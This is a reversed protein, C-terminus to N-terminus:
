SKSPGHDSQDDSDPVGKSGTAPSDPDKNPEGPSRSKPSGELDPEFYDGDEPDLYKTASREWPFEEEDVDFDNAEEFSDAKSQAQLSMETRIFRMMEERLTLPRKLGLPVEVPTKDLVKFRDIPCLRWSGVDKVIDVLLESVYNVKVRKAGTSTSVSELHYARGSFLEQDSVPTIQFVTPCDAWLQYIGPQIMARGDCHNIDFPDVERYVPKSM